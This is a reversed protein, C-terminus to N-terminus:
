VCAEEVQTAINNYFNACQHLVAAHRYFRAAIAAEELVEQRLTFGLAQLQRVQAAAHLEDM